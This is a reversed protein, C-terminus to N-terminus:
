KGQCVCEEEILWVDGWTVLVQLTRQVNVCVARNSRPRVEPQGESASHNVKVKAERKGGPTTQWCCTITQQNRTPTLCVKVLLGPIPTHFSMDRLNQIMVKEGVIEDSANVVSM